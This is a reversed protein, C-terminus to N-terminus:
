RALSEQGDSRSQHRHATLLELSARWLHVDRDQDATAASSAGAPLRDALTAAARAWTLTLVESARDPDGGRRLLHSELAARGAGSPSFERRLCAVQDETRWIWAEACALYHWAYVLDSGALGRADAREWDLVALTNEPTVLMNPHGLDGHEVAGPLPETGLLEHTTAITELLWGPSDLAEALTRLGSAADNPSRPPAPLAGLREVFELVLSRASDPDRRVREPSLEEGTLATSIMAPRGRHRWVGVLEPVGPFGAAGLHALVGAEHEIGHTDAPRRPVKVALVARHPRDAMVLAIAHRSTEYRPTILVADRADTAGLFTRARPDALLGELWTAPVAQRGGFASIEGLGYPLAGLRAAARAVAGVVRGAPIGEVRRLTAELAPLSGLPVLRASRAISPAHWTGASPRLGARRMRRQLRPLAARGLGGPRLALVAGAETLRDRADRLDRLSPDILVALDLTDRAAGAVPTVSAGLEGLGTIWGDPLGRAPVGVRASSDLWAGDGLLLPDVAQSGRLPGEHRPVLTRWVIGLASALTEEPASTADVLHAHPHESAIHRYEQRWEELITPSHERKRAYMVHGPADLVLILDVRPALAHATWRTLRGGLSTDDRGLRSDLALRDLLVVEGRLRHWTASFSSSAVRSVALSLRAGPVRALWTDWRHPKWLGLHRYHTTLPLSDALGELLTTKGAGDPGLVGITAGRELGRWRVPVRRGVRGTVARRGAAMPRARRWRAALAISFARSDDEREVVELLRTTTGPGGLAELDAALPSREPHERLAARAQGLRQPTVAGKDLVLHLLLLLAEDSPDPCRVGERLVRRALVQSAWPSVLDQYRGFSLQDVIDLGNWQGEGFRFHFRHPGHGPARVGVFGAARVLDEAIPLWASDVLLDVDRDAHSLRDRGRLLLWPVGAREWSEFLERLRPQIEHTSM